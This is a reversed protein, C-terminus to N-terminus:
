NLDNTRYFYHHKIHYKMNKGFINRISRKVDRLYFYAILIASMPRMPSEGRAGNADFSNDIEKVLANQQNMMKVYPMYFTEKVNETLEYELGTLMVMNDTYFRMAHFHFFVAEFKNGTSLETGTIKGNESEFKYQQVNWPAIGGGLHKLEHVGEFRTTWDDLYKQDGFKGDEMRDYCWEICANRWWNLVKMGQETNKFTVFQVCYKGSTVSQDYEKTYRHETILVSKDGMESILVAPDAYFCMDADVYTCNDLGFKNISYLITASGCTWCYEGATRDAKVRLLEPDEFEKLPIVTMNKYNQSTLFEFCKDDFAFVYLHFDDSNKLLSEYMVLGRSLYGSNFLTCFNLKM